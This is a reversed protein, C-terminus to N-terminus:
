DKAAAVKKGAKKEWGSVKGDKNRDAKEPKFEEDETNYCPFPGKKFPAPNVTPM